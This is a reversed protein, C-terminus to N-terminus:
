ADLKAARLVGRLVYDHLTAPGETWVTFPAVLRGDGDTGEVLERAGFASLEQLYPVPPIASEEEFRAVDFALADGFADIAGRHREPDLSALRVLEWGADVFIPHLDGEGEEAFAGHDAFPLGETKMFAHVRERARAGEDSTSWVVRLIAALEKEDCRLHLREDRSARDLGPIGLVDTARTCAPALDPERAVADRVADVLIAHVLHLRGAVYRHSGLARVVRAAEESTTVPLELGEM